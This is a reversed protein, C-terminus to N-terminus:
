GAKEAAGSERLPEASYGLEEIARCLGAVDFGSGRVVAEGAKLDVEAVEVGQSSVLAGHVAEVCHSCHMGRISLRVTEHEGALDAEGIKKPKHLMAVVLVAALVVLAAVRISGPLMWGMAP